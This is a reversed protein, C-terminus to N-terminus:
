QSCIQFIARHMMGIVTAPDQTALNFGTSLGDGDRQRYVVIMDAVIMDGADMRRLTDILVDRPTWLRCDQEREAKVEALSRPHDAFSDM